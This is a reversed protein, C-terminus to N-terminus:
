AAEKARADTWRQWEDASRWIVDLGIISFDRPAIADADAGPFLDVGGARLYRTCAESCFMAGNERGQYKAFWFALLGVYDYPQGIVTRAWALANPQQLAATPRLILALGSVDPAYIDVGLGNRSTFTSLTDAPTRIAVECHTFRSWTKLQILKNYAGNRNFLLVDGAQADLPSAIAAAAM